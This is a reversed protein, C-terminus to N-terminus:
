YILLGTIGGAVILLIPNVKFFFAAVFSVALIAWAPQAFFLAELAAVALFLNIKLYKIDDM